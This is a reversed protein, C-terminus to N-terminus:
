LRLRVRILKHLLPSSFYRVQSSLWRLRRDPFFTKYFKEYAQKTELLEPPYLLESEPFAPWNAVSFVKLNLEWKSHHFKENLSKSTEYDQLLHSIRRLMNTYCTKKM